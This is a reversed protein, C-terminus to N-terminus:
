VLWTTKNAEIYGFKLPLLDSRKKRKPLCYCIVTQKNTYFDQINIQKEPAHYSIIKMLQHPKAMQLITTLIKM